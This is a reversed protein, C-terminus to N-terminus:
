GTIAGQLASSIKRVHSFDTGCCGGFVNMHPFRSQLSSYEGALDDSDGEDLHNLTALMTHEQKSANARIGRIRTVWEEDALAPAFDAPHACNIMFYAAASDTAQDVAEIAERLSEGSALGQDKEVMFSIVSPLGASQAGRVIGIAEESSSLSLATVIDAGGSRFTEIQVQHYEQAGDATLEDNRQYADGKPGICGSIVVDKPDMGAEDAVERYLDLAQLNADHLASESYGLLDGWDRSARYTLSDFVFATRHDVAIDAFSRYYSRVVKTAAPDELLPFSSFNPLDLGRKHILWTETGGDTLFLRNTEHPLAPREADM